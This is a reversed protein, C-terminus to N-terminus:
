KLDKVATQNLNIENHMICNDHCCQLYLGENTHDISRTIKFRPRYVLAIVTKTCYQLSNSGMVVVDGTALNATILQRNSSINVFPNKYIVYSIKHGWVISKLSTKGTVVTRFQRIAFNICNPLV